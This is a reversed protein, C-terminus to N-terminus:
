MCVATMVPFAMLDLRCIGIQYRLSFIQPQALPMLKPSLTGGADSSVFNCDRLSCEGGTLFRDDLALIDVAEDIGLVYVM